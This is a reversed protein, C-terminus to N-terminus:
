KGTSIQQWAIQARNVADCFARSSITSATIADIEGGDKTVKLKNQSPKKGKFQSSWSLGTKKDLSKKKEINDGLGPTEKHELVSVDYISGDPNFGVMIRIKGGFGMNSFTEIATGVWKDHNYAKYLYISDGDIYLAKIMESPENDFEPLTSKLANLKKIRKAEAIPEKTIKYIFGLGSSAFATVLFLTLVMNLFTSERKNMKNNKELCRQNLM